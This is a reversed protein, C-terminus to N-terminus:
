IHFTCSVKSVRFISTFSSHLYCSPLCLIPHLSLCIQYSMVLDQTEEGIIQDTNELCKARHLSLLQLLTTLSNNCYQM